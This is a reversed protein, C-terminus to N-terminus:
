DPQKYFHQKAEKKLAEEGFIELLSMLRYETFDEAPILYFVFNAAKPAGEWREYFGPVGSFSYGKCKPVDRFYSHPYHRTELDNLKGERLNTLFSETYFRTGVSIGISTWFDSCANLHVEVISRHQDKANREKVWVVFLTDHADLWGGLNRSFQECVKRVRPSLTKVKGNYIERGEHLRMEEAQKITAEETYDKQNMLWGLWKGREKWSM